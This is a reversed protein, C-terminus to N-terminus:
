TATRRQRALRRVESLIVYRHCARDDAEVCMVAVVGGAAADAVQRLAGSAEERALMGGFRERAARVEEPTGAFGPRNWVPNGLQPAHCYTIGADALAAALARKSFGSKRSVPNLRVDVLLQVGGAALERIFTDPTKGEYGVGMVGRSETVTEM